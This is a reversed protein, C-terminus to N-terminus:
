KTLSGCTCQGPATLIVAHRPVAGTYLAATLKDVPLLMEIGRILAHRALQAQANQKIRALYTTGAVAGYFRVGMRTV